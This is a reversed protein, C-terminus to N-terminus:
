ALSHRRQRGCGENSGIHIWEYTSRGPMDVVYVSKWLDDNDESEEATDCDGLGLNGLKPTHPQVLEIGECAQNATHDDGFEVVQLNTARRFFEVGETCRITLITSFVHGVKELTTRRAVEHVVSGLNAVVACVLNAIFKELGKAVLEVVPPPVQANERGEDCAVQDNEEKGRLVEVEVSASCVIAVSEHM